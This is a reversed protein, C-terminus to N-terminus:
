LMGAAMCEAMAKEFGRRFGQDLRYVRGYVHAPGGQFGPEGGRMSVKLVGWMIGMYEPEGRALIERALISAQAAEVAEKGARELSAGSFPRFLSEIKARVIGKLGLGPRGAIIKLDMIVGESSVRSRLRCGAQHPQAELTSAPAALLVRRFPRELSGWFTSDFGVKLGGFSYVHFPISLIADM